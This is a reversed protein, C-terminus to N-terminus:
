FCCQVVDVIGNVIDVEGDFFEIGAYEVGFSVNFFVAVSELVDLLADILYFSLCNGLASIVFCDFGYLTFM